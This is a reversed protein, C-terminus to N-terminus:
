KMVIARINVNTWCRYKVKGVAVRRWDVLGEEDRTDGKKKEEM